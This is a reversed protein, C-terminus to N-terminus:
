LIKSYSQVLVNQGIVQSAPNGLCRTQLSFYLVEHTNGTFSRYHFKKLFKNLPQFGNVKKTFLKMAYMECIAIYM